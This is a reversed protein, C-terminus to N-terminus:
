SYAPFNVYQSSMYLLKVSTLPSSLLDGTTVPSERAADPAESAQRVHTRYPSVHGGLGLQEVRCEVPGRHPVGGLAAVEVFGDLLQALDGIAAVVDEGLSRADGRPRPIGPRGSVNAILQDGGPHEDDGSVTAAQREVVVLQLAPGPDSEFTPLPEALALPVLPAAVRRSSPFCFVGLFKM